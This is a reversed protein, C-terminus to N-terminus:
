CRGDSVSGQPLYGVAALHEFVESGYLRVKQRKGRTRIEAVPINKMLLVARMGSLTLGFIEALDQMTYREEQKEAASM